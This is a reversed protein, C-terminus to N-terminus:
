LISGFCPGMFPTWFRVIIIDPREAKIQRGVQLWNFPNVSNIISRIQIDKPAPEDTHQSKGPFLFSPYQLSFSYILVDHGQEQLVAALRENFSSIGGGRLPHASGIIRIKM